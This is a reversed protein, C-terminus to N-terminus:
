WRIHTVHFILVEKKRGNWTLGSHNQEEALFPVLAGTETYRGLPEIVLSASEIDKTGSSLYPNLISPAQWYIISVNGDTGRAAYVANTIAMILATAIMTIKLKMEKRGLIKRISLKGLWFRLIIKMRTAVWSIM